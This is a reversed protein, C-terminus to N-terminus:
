KKKKDKRVSADAPGSYQEYIIQFGTGELAKNFRNVLNVMTDFENKKAADELFLTTSNLTGEKFAETTEKFTKTSIQALYVEAHEFDTIENFGHGKRKHDQEHELVNILNKSDSLNEGIYDNKQINIYIENGLTHGQAIGKKEEDKGPNNSEPVKRVGVIGQGGSYKTTIGAQKGYHRVVNGVARLNETTNLPVKNM